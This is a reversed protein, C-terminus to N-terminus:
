DHRPLQREELLKEVLTNSRKQHELVRRRHEETSRQYEELRAAYKEKAMESTTKAGYARLLKIMASDSVDDLVHCEVYYHDREEESYGDYTYFRPVVTYLSLNPDLGKDLMEFVGEYDLDKVRKLLEKINPDTQPERKKNISEQTLAREKGFLKKFLKKM